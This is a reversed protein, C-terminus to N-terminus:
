GATRRELEAFGGHVLKHCWSHAAPELHAYELCDSAVQELLWRYRGFQPLSREQSELVRALPCVTIRNGPGDLTLVLDGRYSLAWRMGAQTALVNGWVLAAGEIDSKPYALGEYDLYDLARVDDDGGDFPCAFPMNHFSRWHARFEARAAAVPALDDDNAPFLYMPHVIWGGPAQGVRGPARSSVRLDSPSVGSQRPRADAPM